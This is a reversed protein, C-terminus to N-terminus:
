RIFTQFPNAYDPDTHLFIHFGLVFGILIPLATLLVTSLVQFVEVAIYVFTGISQLINYFSIGLKNIM